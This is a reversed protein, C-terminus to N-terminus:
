QSRWLHEVHRRQTISRKSEGTDADNVYSFPDRTHTFMPIVKTHGFRYIINDAYPTSVRSIDVTDDVSVADVIKQATIRNIIYAVTSWHMNRDVPELEKNTYKGIPGLQLIDCGMDGVGNFIDWHRRQWYKVYEDSIDDEAIFCRDDASKLFHRMCMVHSAFCCNVGPTGYHHFTINDPVAHCDIAPVRVFPYESFTTHLINITRENRETCRDLNIYM